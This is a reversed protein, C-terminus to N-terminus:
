QFTQITDCQTQCRTQKDTGTLQPQSDTLLRICSDLCETEDYGTQQADPITLAGSMGNSVGDTYTSDVCTAPRLATNGTWDSCPMYNDGERYYNPLPDGCDYSNEVHPKQPNAPTDDGRITSGPPCDECTRTNTTEVSTPKHIREGDSCTKNLLPSCRKNLTKDVPTEIWQTLINCDPTTYPTYLDDSEKFYGDIPDGCSSQINATGSLDQTEQYTQKTDDSGNGGIRSGVPCATCNHQLETDGSSSTIHLQTNYIPREGANCQTYLSCIDNNDEPRLLYHTYMNCGAEITSKRPECYKDGTRYQGTPDTPTVLFEIDYECDPTTYSECKTNDNKGFKYQDPPCELCETDSNANTYKYRGGDCYYCEDPIPNGSDIIEQCQIYEGDDTKHYDQIADGCDTVGIDVITQEANVRSGIPCEQCPRNDSTLWETIEGNIWGAPCNSLLSCEKDATKDPPTKIWHTSMDCGSQSQEVLEEPTSYNVCKNDETADSSERKYQNTGCMLDEISTKEICSKEYNRGEKFEGSQCPACTRESTKYKGAECKLCSPYEQAGFKADECECYETPCSTGIYYGELPMGCTNEDNGPQPLNKTTDDGGITSGLPCDRCGRKDSTLPGNIIDIPIQGSKCDSFKRCEKDGKNGIPTFIYHTKENCNLETYPTCNTDSNTGSKYQNSGCSVCENGSVYMGPGCIILGNGGTQSGGTQSGGTQSGGTQSGGTQSGGTQSGGTQSGGTQSGGTQSGGTQSGGTQSGGTQSGGTQSGGTQSGGTQSGGTQSGGTQSGGTQSGGTQSGGTQSGGTQSGGTQSDGTQSGGTQSDGTQSGFIGTSIDSVLNTFRGSLFRGPDPVNGGGGTDGTGSDGTGSDGTGSDGTGGTGSDGTGSDGTGSDGTGSDGTGSDGTGSDGTGSDGTGSDGTNGGGTDGGGTGGGGTNGGGTGGGGTNGGTTSCKDQLNALLTNRISEESIGQIDINCINAIENNTDKYNSIETGRKLWENQYYNKDTQLSTKAEELTQINERARDLQRNLYSRIAILNNKEKESKILNKTADDGEAELTNEIITITKNLEEVQSDLGEINGELTNITEEKLKLETDKSILLNKLYIIFCFLKKIFCWFPNEEGIQKCYTGDRFNTCDLNSYNEIVNNKYYFYCNYILLFILIIVLLITIYISNVNLKM